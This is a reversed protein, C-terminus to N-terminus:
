DAAAVMIRLSRGDRWHLDAARSIRQCVRKTARGDRRRRRLDLRQQTLQRQRECCETAYRKQIGVLHQCLNRVAERHDGLQQETITVKAQAAEWKQQRTRNPGQV